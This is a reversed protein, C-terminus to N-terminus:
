RSSEEARSWISDPRAGSDRMSPETWGAGDYTGQWRPPHGARHKQATRRKPKRDTIVRRDDHCPGTRTSSDRRTTSLSTNSDRSPGSSRSHTSSGGGEGASRRADPPAWGRPVQGVGGDTITRAYDRTVCPGMRSSREYRGGSLRRHAATILWYPWSWDRAELLDKSHDRIWARPQIHKNQMHQRLEASELRPRPRGTGGAVSPEMGSHCRSTAATGHQPGCTGPHSGGSLPVYFDVPQVSRSRTRAALGVNTASPVVTLLM